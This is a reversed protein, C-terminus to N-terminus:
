GIAEAKGGAAAIKDSASQSFKTAVVTLARDLEGDGLIKVGDWRGRVLGVTRLATEDVRAGAEFIVLDGVNVSALNTRFINTFGIKPKRRQIPMQGGEFGNGVDPSKRALQGKHGRGSTKGLGSGPGRGLRKPARNAGRPAKLQSLENM